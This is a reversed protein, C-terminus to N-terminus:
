TDDGHMNWKCLRKEFQMGGYLVELNTHTRLRLAMFRLSKRVQACFIICKEANPASCQQGDAPSFEPWM